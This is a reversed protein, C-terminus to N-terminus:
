GRGYRAGKRGGRRPKDGFLRRERKPWLQRVADVVLALAVVTLFGAWVVQEFTDGRLLRPALEFGVMAMLVLAMVVNGVVVWRRATGGSGMHM